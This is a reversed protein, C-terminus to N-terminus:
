WLTMSEALNALPRMAGNQGQVIACFRDCLTGILVMFAAGIGFEVLHVANTWNITLFKM